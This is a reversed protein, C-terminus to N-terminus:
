RDEDISRALIHVHICIHYIYTLIRREESRNCNKLAQKELVRPAHFFRQPSYFCMPSVSFLYGDNIIEDHFSAPLYSFCIAAYNRANNFPSKRSASATMTKVVHGSQTACIGDVKRNIATEKEACAEASVGENKRWARHEDIQSDASACKKGRGAGEDGNEHIIAGNLARKIRNEKRNCASRDAVRGVIKNMLLSENITENRLSAGLSDLSRSFIAINHACGRRGIFKNSECIALSFSLSPSCYIRRVINDRSVMQSAEALGRLCTVNCVTSLSAITAAYHGSARGFLFPRPYYRRLALYSYSRYCQRRSLALKEGRSLSQLKKRKKTKKANAKGDEETGTSPHTNRSTKPPDDITEHVHGTTAPLLVPPRRHERRLLVTTHLVM